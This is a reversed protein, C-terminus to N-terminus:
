WVRPQRGGIDTWDDLVERSRASGDAALDLAVVIPRAAPFDNGLEVRNATAAPTRPVALLATAAREDTAPEWTRLAWTLARRDPVYLRPPGEGAVRAGYAQAVRDGVEAWGQTAPDAFGFRLLRQVSGPVGPGPGRALPYWRTSWRAAVAWFLDPNRSRGDEVLGLSTLEILASHAAGTSVGSAAALERVSAAEFGELLRLAVALGTPRALPDVPATEPGVLSPIRRDVQLGDRVLRLHGSRDLWGWGERELERRLGPDVQDAVLVYLVSEDPQDGLQRRLWALDPRSSAKVEILIPGPLVLDARRDPGTSSKASFGLETLVAALEAIAAEGSEGNRM